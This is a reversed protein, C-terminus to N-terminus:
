KSITITNAIIIKSEDFKQRVRTKRDILGSDFIMNIACSVMESSINLESAIENHIGNKWGGDPLSDYVRKIIEVTCLSKLKSYESTKSSKYRPTYDPINYTEVFRRKIKIYDPGNIKKRRKEGIMTSKIVNLTDEMIREDYIEANFNLFENESYYTKGLLRSISLYSLVYRYSKLYGGILLTNGTRNKILYKDTKVIIDALKPWLNIPISDNFVIQYQDSDNMFKQKLKIARVVDHKILAIYAKAMYLPTLIHPDEIGINQYYNTRRNYFFNSKKLIEEIDRQIKDTAHLSQTEVVTQSNTAKIIQDRTGEDTTVIVKILVKRDDQKNDFKNFYRYISETTQLGNVIQVNDIVLEKGVNAASTALITVGNNLLWFDPSDSNELTEMIDMNVKNFGMFDRVNSDFLYKRLKKNDDIVFKYYDSLNTLVIYRQDGSSLEEEFKLTIKYQQNNRYLQLLETSGIFKFCYSAKSFNNSIMQQIQNTRSIISGGIFSTDGRSAYFFEFSIRNLTTSLKRYLSILTKRKSLLEINYDGQLKDEDISFDFLETTSALISEVVNQKFTDAHKCTVISIRLESNRKPLQSFDQGSFLYDNVFIFFGDIGGDDRGDIWCNEIEDSSLDDGKYIQEFSFWEFVEGRNNSPYERSLRDDIISDILILDNKAM